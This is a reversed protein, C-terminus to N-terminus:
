TKHFAILLGYLVCFLIAAVLSPIKYPTIATVAIGLFVIRLVVPLKKEVYGQVAIAVSLSVVVASAATVLTRVDLGIHLYDTNLVFAFPLIFGTIGIKCATWSVKIPNENAISAAAYSAVAVPPTIASISAFFLLFLHAPFTEVGLNILAPAIATACVIYAATTPLGMGLMACVLMSLVLSLLLSNSGLQVIFNSFKLGLGTLSFVGVIIGSTACASLVSCLSRGAAVAGNVLKRGTIRDKPDIVGCVIVALTAYIAAVMPTTGIVLLLVLLIAIPIFLKLSRLVSKRVDQVEQLDIGKINYRVAELDVMKFLCLYYMVAPIVAGICVVSYPVGAIDALVFAAAGMVPPMIQGGTSAVAEIAGASASPYGNRKMLPITFAGTSVVNAVCSGSITGFLASGVIAMKAPGGRQKGTLALALNQFIVDAGSANLYAAFILFLYVNAACTGTPVGYIGRDSFLALVIRPLSYGRHGFLGPIKDGFLAYVVAVLAIIPLSKGLVRRASELVIVSLILGFVFIKQTVMGSQMDQVYNDFDIIVYLNIVLVALIIAWDIIHCVIHASCSLERKKFSKELPFYLFILVLGIMVHYAYFQISPLTFATYNGIHLAVAFLSVFVIIGRVITDYVSTVDTKDMM